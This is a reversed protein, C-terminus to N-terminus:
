LKYCYYSIDAMTEQVIFSSIVPMAYVDNFSKEFKRIANITKTMLTEIENGRPM